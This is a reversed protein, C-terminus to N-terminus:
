LKGRGVYYMLAGVLIVGIWPVFPGLRDWFRERLALEAEKVADRANAKSELLTVREVLGSKSNGNIAHDLVEIKELVITRLETIMEALHDETKELLQAMSIHNAELVCIRAEHDDIQNVQHLEGEM